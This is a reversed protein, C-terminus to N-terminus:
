SRHDVPGHDDDHGSSQGAMVLGASATGGRCGSAESNLTESALITSHFTDRNTRGAKPFNRIKVFQEQPRLRVPDRPADLVDRTDRRHQGGLVDVAVVRGDRLFVADRDPKVGEVFVFVVQMPSNKTSRANM